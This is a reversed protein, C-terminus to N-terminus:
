IEKGKKLILVPLETEEVCIFSKFGKKVIVPISYAKETPLSIQGFDTDIFKMNEFDKQLVQLFKIERGSDENYFSKTFAALDEKSTLYKWLPQKFLDYTVDKKLEEIIFKTSTFNRDADEIIPIIVENGQFDIKILTLTEM